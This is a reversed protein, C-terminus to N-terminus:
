RLPLADCRFIPFILGEENAQQLLKDLSYRHPECVLLAGIKEGKLNRLAQLVQEENLNPWDPIMLSRRDSYYPVLPNWDSGLIMLVSDKPTNKQIYGTVQLIEGNPMKQLPHYMAAVGEIGSWLIFTLLLCGCIKSRGSSSELLGMVAFGVAGLLFLGNANMYYDHIFHVNTFIAPSILFLTILVLYERWRSRTISVAVGSSILIIWAKLPLGFLTFFRGLINEWVQISLKQGITGYIWAKCAYSTQQIGIPQYEKIKDSCNVWWVTALLPVVCVLFLPVALRRLEPFTSLKLPWCLYDRIIWFGSFVLFPFWTTVKDLGALVGCIAGCVLLLLSGSELGWMICAIYSVSFFLASTEIMFTRAWFLYFPSVLLICLFLLAHPKLVYRWRLLAYVPIMTFLYFAASVARGAQDLPLHTTNAVRAVILQYVPFEFPIAWPKGLVPTEYALKFPKDKLYYATIATQSQRFSHHDNITNNWGISFAWLAHALCGLLLLAAILTVSNSQRENTTPLSSM